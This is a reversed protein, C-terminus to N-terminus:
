KESIPSFDLQNMYKIIYVYYFKLCAKFFIFHNYNLIKNIQISTFSIVNSENIKTSKYSRLWKKPCSKLIDNCVCKHKVSYKQFNRIKPENVQNHIWYGPERKKPYSFKYIKYRLLLPSCIFKLFRVTPM